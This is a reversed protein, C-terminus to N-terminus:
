GYEKKHMTPERGLGSKLDAKSGVKPTGGAVSSNGEGVGRSESYETRKIASAM